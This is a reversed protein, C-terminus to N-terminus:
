FPVRGDLLCAVLAIIRMTMEVMARLVNCLVYCVELKEQAERLKRSLREVEGDASAVRNRLVGAQRRRLVVFVCLRLSSSAQSLNNSHWLKDHSVVHRAQTQSM